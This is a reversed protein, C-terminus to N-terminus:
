SLIRHNLFAFTFNQRKNDEDWKEKIFATQTISLNPQFVSELLVNM